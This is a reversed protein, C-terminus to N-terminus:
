SMVLKGRWKAYVAYDVFKERALYAATLPARARRETIANTVHLAYADSGSGSGYSAVFITEGPQAIDLV